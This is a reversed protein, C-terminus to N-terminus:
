IAGEASIIAVKAVYTILDLCFSTTTHVEAPCLMYRKSKGQKIRM